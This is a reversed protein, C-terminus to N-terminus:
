NGERDQEDLLTRAAALAQDHTTIEGALIRDHVGELIRGLRPGPEIGMALLAHGDILERARNLSGVRDIHDVVRLTEQLIPVWGSSRHACAECDAVLVGLLDFFLPYRERLSRGAPNDGESLFRVQKGRGMKPLDAIRMHNKVLFVLRTTEHRSLRFRTGIKRTMRAGVAEHGGMNVGGSRELAYPKGIDHLLVALKVLPDRIFWDAVRVAAITHVFVDGEPHYEEPQPVGKTAVVEPLIFRLLGYVDLLLLGHAGQDTQLIRLLEDRVREWSISSIRGANEEIARVTEPDITGHIQCAFRVTRLMRLYDEAFRVRPDGIARIRKANLDEIGGVLDIVEGDATAALGNITLDRRRLDEELDRVLEVKGPWRGDYEEEVRFTAVEYEHGDPAVIVLVGFEEGVGVVPCDRFLRRIENPLASTAIDVDQPSFSLSPDLLSRVGDRVVGGILVAEYGAANLRDLIVRVYPHLSFLANTDIRYTTNM